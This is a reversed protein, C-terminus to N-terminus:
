EKGMATDLEHARLVVETHHRGQLVMQHLVHKRGGDNVEGLLQLRRHRANHNAHQHLGPVFDLGACRDQTHKGPRPCARNNGAGRACPILTFRTCTACTFYTFTTKDSVMDHPGDDLTMRVMPKSQKKQNATNSAIFIRLLKFAAASTTTFSIQVFTPSRTSSPWDRTTNSYNPIANAQGAPAIPLSMGKLSLSHPQCHM